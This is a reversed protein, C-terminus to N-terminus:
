GEQVKKLADALIANGKDFQEVAARVLDSAETKGAHTLRDAMDTLEGAHHQNHELMYSLLATMQDQTKAPEHHHHHEHDHDHGHALPNGNEDTVIHMFEGRKVIKNLIYCM